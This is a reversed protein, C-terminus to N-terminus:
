LQARAPQQRAYARRLLRAMLLRASRHLYYLVAGITLLTGSQALEHAVASQEDELEGRTARKHWLAAAVTLLALGALVVCRCRRVSVLAARAKDARLETQRAAGGRSEEAARTPGTEPEIVVPSGSAESKGAEIGAAIAGAREHALPPGHSTSLSVLSASVRSSCASLSASTEAGDSSGQKRGTAPSQISAGERVTAAAACPAAMPSPATVPPAHVPSPASPSPARTADASSWVAKLAESVRRSSAVIALAVLLLLALHLSATWQQRWTTLELVTAATVAFWLALALRRPTPCRMPALRSWGQDHRGRDRSLGETMRDASDAWTAAVNLLAACMLVRAIATITLVASDAGALVVVRVAQLVRLLSACAVCWAAATAAAISLSGPALCLCSTGDVPRARPDLQQREHAREYEGQPSPSPPPAGARLRRRGLASSAGGTRVMTRFLMILDCLGVLTLAGAVLIRFTAWTAVVVVLVGARECDAGSWGSSLWGDCACFGVACVRGAPCELASSCNM